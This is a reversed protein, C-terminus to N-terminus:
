EGHRGTSTREFQPLGDGIEVWDVKEDVWVHRM